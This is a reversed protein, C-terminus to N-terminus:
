CYIICREFLTGKSKMMKLVWDFYKAVHIKSSMKMVAYKINQRGLSVVVFEPKNM